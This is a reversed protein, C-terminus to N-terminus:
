KAAGRGKKIWAVGILIVTSALALGFLVPGFATTTGSLTALAAQADVPDVAFAPAAAVVSAVVLAARAGTNRAFALFKMSLSESRVTLAPM